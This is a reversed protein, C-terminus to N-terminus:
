IYYTKRGNIKKNYVITGDDLKNKGYIRDIYPSEIHDLIDMCGKYKDMIKGNNLHTCLLSYGVFVINYYLDNIQQDTITGCKVFVNIKSLYLVENKIYNGIGSLISQDMLVSCISKNKYKKCIDKLVEIRFVNSYIYVGLKNVRITHDHSDYINIKSLKLKDILYINKKGFSLINKVYKIDEDCVKNHIIGTLGLHIHIYTENDLEIWLLKGNCDINKVITHMDKDDISVLKKNIIKKNLYHVYYLITDAEPM